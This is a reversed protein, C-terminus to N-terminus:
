YIGSHVKEHNRLDQRISFTSDCVLCKHQKFKQHKYAIHSKLHEKRKFSCLCHECKFKREFKEDIHNKLIHSNLTETTKFSLLCIGCQNPRYFHKFYDILVFFLIQKTIM